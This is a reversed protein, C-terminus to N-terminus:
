PLTVSMCQRAVLLSTAVTQNSKSQCQAYFRTATLLSALDDSPSWNCSSHPVPPRPSKCCNMVCFMLVTLSQTFRLDSWFCVNLHLETYEPLSLLLTHSLRISSCFQALANVTQWQSASTSYELQRVQVQVQVQLLRALHPTWRQGSDREWYVEDMM